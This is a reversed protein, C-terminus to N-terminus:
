IETGHGKPFRRRTGDLRAVTGREAAARVTVAVNNNHYYKSIDIIIATIGLYIVGFDVACEM